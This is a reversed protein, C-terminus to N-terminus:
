ACSLVFSDGSGSGRVASVYGDGVGPGTGTGSGIGSGDSGGPGTRTGSGPGSGLGGGVGCPQPRCPPVRGRLFRAVIIRRRSNGRAATRSATAAAGALPSM